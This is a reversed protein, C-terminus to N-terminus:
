MIITDGKMPEMAEMLCCISGIHSFAATTIVGGNDYLLLTVPNISVWNQGKYYNCYPTRLDRMGDTEINEGMIWISDGKEPM